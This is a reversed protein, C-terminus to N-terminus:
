LQIQKKSKHMEIQIKSELVTMFAEWYYEEEKRSATYIYHKAIILCLNLGLRRSFDNAVGYIIMNEDLTISESNKFNWWNTFHSWFSKVKSCSAFLHALTQRESCLHCKDTEKLADRFLTSNTPLIHHIIKFQFIALRTDKTVKFPLSYILQITKENLNAKVMRKEATPTVFKKKVFFRTASKCSLKNLPIRNNDEGDLPAQINGKLINVWERPISHCVGHYTLFNAKIKFRSCFEPFSLFANNQFIDKIKIVGAEHWKKYYVSVGGVKIFRNNWIIENLVQEKTNPSFYNIKGWAYLAESYFALPIEIKLAKLDFNCQLLFLGGVDRLYSLPIYSWSSTENSDNLRKIWSVKLADNIIEFDPMDLGGKERPGIMTKQKIKVKKNWVFQTIAQNVMNVFKSPFTLVSTNYVLKSIALSKLITIRGYLTLNRPYWLNLLSKMSNLKQEFNKKYAVEDDHSFHIGLALISNSPWAIGLPETTNNRNAGLWMGETKSKNIELGSCEQFNSLLQFLNNASKLDSVFATTDDAYQSLKFEKNHINIGQITKDTRIANALIEACLVFLIGSLPCGQRVGREPMFFESAYGNNIFCSSCDTYFTKIWKQICPGFNFAQLTKHLFNWDVTDFAKKFDIFIALGPINELETVKMIDMILRINQGIYREKVYGTQDDNIIKPLVNSIRHAIAKTAIKYDVNLLTLPRWNELYLKDKRKKPIVKIIGQKQTINLHQHEFGYNLSQVLEEGLMSWFRLYFEVSLGDSGPCKGKACQELIHLCEENSLPHELENKGTEDLKALNPNEFFLNYKSNNCPAATYLNKYFMKGQELIDNPTTIERDDNTKLKSIHTKFHHRKELNLFYKTNKEGQEHWRTRSRIIAGKTRYEAIANLEARLRYFKLINEKSRETKLLTMLHDIQTQLNKEANRRERNKRKTYQVCFGRVEMKIMDWYLGKDELYNHKTKFDPIKNSLEQIFKEDHLLSNNIKWFGPGRQTYEKSQLNLIIASHDSLTYHVITSDKVSNSLDKSVLWYDLRCQVKLSNNRWTYQSQNPHQSRWVDQLNYTKCLNKIESIVAKKREISTGGTKDLPALACNFDGGLIIQMDAYERLTDNLKSFFIKQSNNDNPSYINCLLFTSDYLSAELLIYRGNKDAIINKIRVDLKPNFLIAVGKSHNTGHSFFFNGGWESKWMAEINETSYTEQLFIVDFKYNHLWRFLQRRKRTQNLGRANLSCFSAKFPTTM